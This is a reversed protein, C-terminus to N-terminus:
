LWCIAVGKVGMKCLSRLMTYPQGKDLKRHLCGNGATAHGSRIQQGGLLLYM